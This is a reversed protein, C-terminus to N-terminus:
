QFLKASKEFPNEIYEAVTELFQAGVHGDIIRHDFSLSLNMFSGIEIKEKVVKTDQYIEGVALIAAQPPNIIATFSRIGYMGLNTITFTGNTVDKYELRGERAKQVLVERKKAVDVLSLMDCHYITPVVLGEKAAVALGINIDKFIIHNNNQLSSNIVIHKRLAAACCKLLFDTYTIKVSKEAKTKEKVADRAKILSTVEVKRNLTIHPITTKSLSMREAIIKRIRKLPTSSAVAIEGEEPAKTPKEGKTKMLHYAEVDEKTLRGEPGTGKIPENEYDVGLEAATKRALPSILVKKGSKGARQIGTGKKPIAEVPKEDAGRKPKAIDLPIEEDKSGIYGIIEQVPIQEGEKGIIKKLYGSYISEVEVTVKDSEVSLLIDGKEVKDGEKKHWQVITGTQMTFGLRPMVIENM